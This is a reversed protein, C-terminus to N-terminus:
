SVIMREAALPSRDFFGPSADLLPDGFPQCPMAIGASRVYLPAAVTAPDLDVFSLGLITTGDGDIGVDRVELPGFRLDDGGFVFRVLGM